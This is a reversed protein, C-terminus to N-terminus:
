AYVLKITLLRKCSSLSHTLSHSSNLLGSSVCYTMEFVLRELWNIASTSVVMFLSVFLVYVLFVFFLCLVVWYSVQAKIEECGFAM